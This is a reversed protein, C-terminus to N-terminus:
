KVEWSFPAGLMLPLNLATHGAPFGFQVPYDYEEVVDRIIQEASRGFAVANDNMQTMGGVILGNLNSLMNARKLCMMMRDIHYLYEDLDELFLITNTTDLQSVAGMLSYIVSLNGGVLRGSMKGPRNLPHTQVPYNVAQGQLMALLAAVSRPDKDSKGFNFPMEGHITPIKFNQNLHSHLVTIDSFGIIWKPTVQWPQWDIQDVMRVTGYGGRACFIAKVEPDNLQAQFDAARQADSGALQHNVLGISSGLKVRYGANQLLSIAPQLEELTIKRATAVIAVTDNPQLDPPFIM